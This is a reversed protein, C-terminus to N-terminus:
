LKNKELNKIIAKMKGSRAFLDYLFSLSKQPILFKTAVISSTMKLFVDDLQTKILEIRDKTEFRLYCLADGRRISFENDIEVVFGLPRVWKSIDYKGAFGYFSSSHMFPPMLWMITEKDAVAILFHDHMFQLSRTSRKDPAGRQGHEVLTPLNFMLSPDGNINQAVPVGDRIFFRMDVPAEVVYTNKMADTLAPCGLYQETYDKNKDKLHKRYHVSLPTLTPGVTSLPHNQSSGYYIKTTM